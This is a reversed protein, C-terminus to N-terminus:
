VFVLSLVLLGYVLGLAAEIAPLTFVYYGVDRGFVPDTVGFPTGHTAQLATIWQPAMIFAMMVALFGTWPLALAGAKRVLTARVEPNIGGVAGYGDIREADPDFGRLAFRANGYLVAFALVGAALGIGWKAALKTVFVREFGIERFWLWDSIPTALMPLLLFAAVLFGIVLVAMSPRRRPRRGPKVRKSHLPRIGAERLSRVFPDEDEPIKDPM